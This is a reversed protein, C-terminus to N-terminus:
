VGNPTERDRAADQQQVAGAAKSESRPDMHMERSNALIQILRKRGRALRSMVTGIPVDAVDAIERYSLEEVERLVIAERYEAPLESLAARVAASQSATELRNIVQTAPDQEPSALEDLQDDFPLRLPDARQLWTYATNRVIALLWAKGDRARCSGIARYARVSAEQVVDEADEDTRMLWRALNYAASLHPMVMQEFRKRNDVESPNTM